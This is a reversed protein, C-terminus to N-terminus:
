DRFTHGVSYGGDVVLTHGTVFSSKESALYLVAEVVEGVEGSRGLPIRAIKKEHERVAADDTIAEAVGPTEVVGPAVANVRIGYEAWELALSKTLMMLGAKSASYHAVGPRAALGAASAINVVSGGRGSAVLHRALAQACYFASDLNLELVARWEERSIELAPRSPFIGACNVLIDAGGYREVAGEILRTGADGGTIDLTLAQFREDGLSGVVSSLEEGDRDAGLVSAGEERLRECIARGLGRAAGTVLVTRESLVGVPRLVVL